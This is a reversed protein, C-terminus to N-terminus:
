DAVVAGIPKAVKFEIVWVWPNSEWPYGRRANIHDWEREYEKRYPTDTKWHAPCQPVGEAQADSESIDQLREVRVQLVELWLRALSKPMYIPSRWPRGFPTHNVDRMWPRADDPLDISEKFFAAGHDGHLAWTERVWLRDGPVGYRCVRDIRGRDYGPGVVEFFSTFEGDVCITGKLFGIFIDKGIVRRTQTKRGALISRISEGSFIIPHDKM